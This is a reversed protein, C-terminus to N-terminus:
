VMSYPGPKLQGPIGFQSNFEDSGPNKSLHYVGLNAEVSAHYNHPCIPCPLPTPVLPHPLLANDLLVRCM